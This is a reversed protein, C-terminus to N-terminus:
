AGAKVSHTILKYGVPSHEITLVYSKNGQDDVLVDNLKIGDIPAYIWIDYLHIGGQNKIEGIVSHEIKSTNENIFCPVQQLTLVDKAGFGGTTSYTPRFVDVYANAKIAQPTVMPDKNVLVLVKDIEENVLIDGVQWDESDLYLNQQQYNGTVPKKFDTDPAFAANVDGIFNKSQIPTMYDISRYVKFDFGIKNGIKKYAKQLKRNIAKGSM